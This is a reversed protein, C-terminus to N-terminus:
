KLFNSLKTIPEGVMFGNEIASQCALMKPNKSHRVQDIV